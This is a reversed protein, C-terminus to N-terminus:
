MTRQSTWKFLLFSCNRCRVMLWVAGLPWQSAKEKDGYSPQLPTMTRRGYHYSTATSEHSTQNPDRAKKPGFSFRKSVPSSLRVGDSRISECNVSTAHPRDLYAQISPMLKTRSELINGNYSQSNLTLICLMATTVAAFAASSVSLTVKRNPTM